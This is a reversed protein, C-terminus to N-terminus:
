SLCLCVEFHIEADGESASTSVVGTVAGEGMEEQTAAMAQIEQSDMIYDREAATQTFIWGVKRMRCAVDSNKPATSFSGRNRYQTDLLQWHGSIGGDSYLDLQGEEDQM